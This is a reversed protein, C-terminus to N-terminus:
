LIGVEKFSQYTTPATGQVKQLAAELTPGDVQSGEIARWIAPFMKEFHKRHQDNIFYATDRFPNSVMGRVETGMLKRQMGSGRMKRYKNIDIRIKAYLECLDRSTLAIKDGISTGHKSLFRHALYAVILAVETKLRMVGTNHAGPMPIFKFHTQSDEDNVPDVVVPRMIKRSEDQQFIGTYNFCNGPITIQEPGFNGPGPVPDLALINVRILKTDPDAHLAHSLMHCTVAGRSWGAMNIVEIKQNSGANIAKIVAMAHEVNQEWGYGSIIGKLKAFPSSVSKGSIPDFTGPTRAVSKKGKSSGPGDNIMWDRNESGGTRSALNAVLEDTKERNFGTGCNYVTFIRTM